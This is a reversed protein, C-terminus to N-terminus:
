EHETGYQEDGAQPPLNEVIRVKVIATQKVEECILSFRDWEVTEGREPFRGLQDLILGALTDYPVDEELKIKLLDALDGISMLADVLLSGDPLRQVTGPEGIDHEDEIEGVLEELLDETTVLGSIGGYEDVVLAMHIRLRQMEKLLENVKKGEPVYFPPRVISEMAFEPDTVTRGLLDKGHIFGVVNEISERYVPYRSYMNDLVERVLEMRPRALDLAVMRTRPVMVERVCTHTFDFINRIYEQETASFVGAEHGEAVIHQVEERTVFAQSGEAKIGMMALVAKNSITLFSVVVGAVKALSSIPKAVRLAMQDAYQLGVTKPVLEGFILSLYSIFVVALGIALPEAAHRIFDVPVAELLPKVSQVAAAGGVASALSGVVTVGVQVTALFRHPDNQLREVIQARSDGAEVLQAIRGKRASIIALESGAFFGNGLILVFIVLLEEIM